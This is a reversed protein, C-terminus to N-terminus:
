TLRCGLFRVIDVVAMKYPNKEQLARKDTNHCLDHMVYRGKKPKGPDSLAQMAQKTTGTKKHLSVAAVQTGAAKVIPYVTLHPGIIWPALSCSGGAFL